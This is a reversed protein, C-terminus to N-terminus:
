GSKKLSDCIQPAASETPRDGRVCDATSVYKGSMHELYISDGAKIVDSKTKAESQIM